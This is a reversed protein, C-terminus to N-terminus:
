RPVIDISGAVSALDFSTAEGVSALMGTDGQDPDLVCTYLVTGDPVNAGNVAAMRAEGLEPQDNIASLWWDAPDCPAAFGGADYVVVFDVSAIPPGRWVLDVVGGGRTEVDCIGASPGVLERLLTLVDTVIFEGDLDIDCDCTGIGQPTVVPGGVGECVPDFLCRAGDPEVVGGLNQCIATCATKVLADSCPDGCVTVSAADNCLCEYRNLVVPPITTTTTSTSTTTSSTTTTTCAPEVNCSADLQEVLGGHAACVNHECVGPASAASCEGCFTHLTGDGCLCSISDTGNPAPHSSDQAHTNAAKLVLFTCLAAAAIGAVILIRETRKGEVHKM